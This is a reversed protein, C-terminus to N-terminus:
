PQKCCHNTTTEAFVYAGYSKNRHEFVIDLMSTNEYNTKM